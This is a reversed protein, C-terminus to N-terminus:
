HDRGDRGREERTYGGLIGFGGGSQLEGDGAWPMSGSFHAARLRGGLLFMNIFRCFGQFLPNRGNKGGTRRENGGIDAIMRWIISAIELRLVIEDFRWM